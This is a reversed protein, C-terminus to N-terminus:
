SPPSHAMGCTMFGVEIIHLVSLPLMSEGTSADRFPEYPAGAALRSYAAEPTMNLFLTEFIGIQVDLTSM